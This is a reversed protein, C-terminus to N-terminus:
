SSPLGLAKRVKNDADLLKQLATANAPRSLDSITKASQADELMRVGLTSALQVYIDVHPQVSTPWRLGRLSAIRQKYGATSKAVGARVADMKPPTRGVAKFLDQSSALYASDIEQYQKAAAEMVSDAGPSQGKPTSASPPSGGAAPQTDSGGSGGSGAGSVTANSSGNPNTGAPVKAASASGRAGKGAGKGVAAAGKGAGAAAAKAQARDAGSGASSQSGHKASGPRGAKTGGTLPAEGSGVSAASGGKTAGGASEKAGDGLGGPTVRVQAGGSGSSRGPAASDPSRGGACGALVIMALVAAAAIVKRM